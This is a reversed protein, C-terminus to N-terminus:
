INSMLTPSRIAGRLPDRPLQLSGFGMTKLFGSSNLRPLGHRCTFIIFSFCPDPISNALDEVVWFIVLLSAFFSLEMISWFHRELRRRKGPCYSSPPSTRSCLRSGGRRGEGAKFATETSCFRGSLMVRIKTTYSIQGSWHCSSIASAHHFFLSCFSALRGLLV